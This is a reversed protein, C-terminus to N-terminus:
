AFTSGPAIPCQQVSPVGDYWPTATQLLGHWHLTTGEKPGSIDNKVWVTFFLSLTRENGITSEGRCRKGEIYDGWNAEVMPGPFQGNILIVDKLYGDPAIQSRSIRFEYSRTIGTDPPEKYPDTNNATKTGWPFGDPLPNNTLFKSFTPANLTGWLSVGNTEVQSLARSTASYCTFLLAINSLMSAVWTFPYLIFAAVESAM